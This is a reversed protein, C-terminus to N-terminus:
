TGSACFILDSHNLDPREGAGGPSRKEAKGAPLNSRGSHLWPKFYRDRSVASTAALVRREDPKMFPLKPRRIALLNKQDLHLRSMESRSVTL